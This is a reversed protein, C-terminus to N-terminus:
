ELVAVCFPPQRSSDATGQLGSGRAAREGLGDQAGEGVGIGYSAEFDPGVGVGGLVGYAGAAQACLADAQAAGLVHEEAFAPCQDLRHDQGAVVVGALLGEGPTTLNDTHNALQPTHPHPRAPPPMKNLRNRTRRHDDEM